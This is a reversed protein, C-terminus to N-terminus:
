QYTMTTLILARTALPSRGAARRANPSSIVIFGSKVGCNM